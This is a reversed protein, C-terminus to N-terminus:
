VRVELVVPRVEDDEPHDAAHSEDEAVCRALRGIAATVCAHQQEREGEHRGAPEEAQVGDSRLSDEERLFVGAELDGNGDPQEHAGDERACRREDVNTGPDPRLQDAAPRQQAHADERHHSPPEDPGNGLQWRQTTRAALRRGAREDRRHSDDPREDVRHAGSRYQIIKRRRHVNSGAAVM